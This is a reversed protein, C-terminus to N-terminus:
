GSVEEELPTIKIEVLYFKSRPKLKNGLYAMISHSGSVRVDESSWGWSLSLTTYPLNHHQFSAVKKCRVSYGKTRFSYKLPFKVEGDYKSLDGRVKKIEANIQKRKEQLDKIKEESM